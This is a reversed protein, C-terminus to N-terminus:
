SIKNDLDYNGVDDANKWFTIGKDHIACIRNMDDSPVNGVITCGKTQVYNWRPRAHTSPVKVRNVAYGYMTFFDDIIHAQSSSLSCRGGYFQQKGAAINAGGNNFNGRLNDPQISASYMSSLVNAVDGIVNGTFNIGESLQEKQRNIDIFKQRSRNSSFKYGIDSGFGATAMGVGFQAMSGAANIAMPVSNQAFWSKFADYNWSCMPYSDITLTETNLSTYGGLESYDAVGKYSCPRLMVQVPQSVTGSIALVPKLNDFFEYRLNLSSGNSNDVHYYNYPYTYLKNNKPKYGDITMDSNVAEPSAYITQGSRGSTLTHTDPITGGILFKPFMYIGTVADPKAIYETIKSDINETDTADYVWITTGSYVNDYITGSTTKGEEVECIAIAVCMSTMSYNEVYNFVPVYDNMVYEGIAVPEPEIHLGITDNAVHERAVFCHEYTFDFRYSQMVDIEYTIETTNENIYEVSTIFAYWWKNANDRANVFMMYNLDYCSTANLQIRLSNKNVRQYTTPNFTYAVKSNFYNYQDTATDFYLTDQYTNNIPVGRCLRIDTNPLIYM